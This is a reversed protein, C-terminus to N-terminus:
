LAQEVVNPVNLASWETAIGRCVLENSALTQAILEDRSPKKGYRLAIGFPIACVTQATARVDVDARVYGQNIGDRLMAALVRAGDDFLRQFEETMQQDVGAAQVVILQMLRPEDALLESYAMGISLLHDRFEAMSTLRGPTSDGIAALLRGNVQRVAHDVIDRKNEFYRYFMSHGSGLRKAIHSISTQHYGREAFEALAADIVEERVLEARKARQREAMTVRPEGTVHIM